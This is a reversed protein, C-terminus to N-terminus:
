RAAAALRAALEAMDAVFWVEPRRNAERVFDRLADSGAIALAVDGVIALRMRYNVFKQMMEGLRRNSLTLIDGPLRSLPIAVMEAAVGWGVALADAADQQSAIIPGEAGLELVTLGGLSHTVDASEMLITTVGLQGM